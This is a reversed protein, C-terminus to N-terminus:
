ELFFLKDLEILIHMIKLVRVTFRSQISGKRYKKKKQIRKAHSINKYSFSSDRVQIFM